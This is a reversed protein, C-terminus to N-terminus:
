ELLGKERDIQLIIFGLDRSSVLNGAEDLCDLTVRGWHERGYWDTVYQDPGVEKIWVNNEVQFFRPGENPTDPNLRREAIVRFINEGNYERKVEPRFGHHITIRTNM